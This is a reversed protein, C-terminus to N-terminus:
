PTMGLEAAAQKLQKTQAPKLKELGAARSFFEQGEGARGQASRGRATRVSFDGPGLQARLQATVVSKKNDDFLARSSQRPIAPTGVPRSAAAMRAWPELQTRGRASQWGDVAAGM